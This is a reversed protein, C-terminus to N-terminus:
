EDQLGLWVEYILERAKTFSSTLWGQTAQRKWPDKGARGPHSSTESKVQFIESNAFWCWSQSKLVTSQLVQSECTTWPDGRGSCRSDICESSPMRPFDCRGRARGATASPLLTIQSPVFSAIISLPATCEEFPVQFYAHHAVSATLPWWLLKSHRGQHDARWLGSHRSYSGKKHLWCTM